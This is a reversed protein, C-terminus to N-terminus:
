RCARQRAARGAEGTHRGKEKRKRQMVYISSYIRRGRVDGVARKMGCKISGGGGACLWLGM